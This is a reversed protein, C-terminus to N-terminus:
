VYWGHEQRNNESHSGLVQDQRLVPMNTHTAKCSAGHCSLGELFLTQPQIGWGVARQPPHLRDRLSMFQLTQEEPM